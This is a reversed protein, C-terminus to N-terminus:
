IKYFDIKFTTNMSAPCLSILAGNAALAEQAINLGVGRHNGKSSYGVRFLNRTDEGSMKGSDSVELHVHRDTESASFKIWRDKNKEIADISNQILNILVILLDHRHMTVCVESPLVNRVSINKELLEKTFLSLTLEVMERLDLIEKPGRAEGEYVKLRDIEASLLTRVPSGPHNKELTYILNRRVSKVDHLIQKSLRVQAFSLISDKLRAKMADNHILYRELLSVNFRVMELLYGSFALPFLGKPDFLTMSIDNTQSLLITLIGSTLLPEKRIQKPYKFILYLCSLLLCISAPAFVIFISPSVSMNGYVVSMFENRVGLTPQPMFFFSQGDRFFSLVVDLVVLAPVVRIPAILFNITTSRVGLLKTVMQIYIVFMMWGSFYVGSLVLRNYFYSPTGYTYVFASLIYFLLCLSLIM